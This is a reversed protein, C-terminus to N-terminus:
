TPDRDGLELPPPKILDPIFGLGPELAKYLPLPIRLEFDIYNPPDDGDLRNEALLVTILGVEELEAGTDVYCPGKHCVALPAETASLFALLNCIFAYNMQGNIAIRRSAKHYAM